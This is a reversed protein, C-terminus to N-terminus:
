HFSLIIFQGQDPFIPLNGCRVVLVADSDTEGQVGLETPCARMNAESTAAASTPPAAAWFPGAGQSAAPM